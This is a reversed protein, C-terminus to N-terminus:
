FNKLTGYGVSTWTIVTFWFAHPISPFDSDHYGLEAYYISSSFLTMGIAILMFLVGLEQRASKM